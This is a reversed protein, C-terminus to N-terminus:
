KIGNYLYDKVVVAAAARAGRYADFPLFTFQIRNTHVRFMNREAALLLYRQNKELRFMRGDIVVAKPSILNVANSLAIGLYDLADQIMTEVTEDGDVQAQLVQDMTLLEPSSCLQWLHEGSNKEMAERCRNLVAREGALAELCGRGGCTPCVPGDRQVVMHGIEGAAASDGYLVKDDIIMQMAVGYSISFYLFPESKVMRDFIEACIVKARVNNELLVRTGLTAELGAAPDSQTWGEKFTTYIKGESGNILGPMAIGVGLLKQRPIKCEEWFDPIQQELQEMTKSYEDLTRFTQRRALTHGQLDTLVYNTHYPSLDVGCIYYRDPNFELMVRRRGAGKAEVLDPEDVERVVHDALLNSVIGTIVPTTLGLDHAIEVRSIPSNLYLHKKILWSNRHKQDFQNIGKEMQELGM